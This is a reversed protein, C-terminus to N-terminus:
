RQAVPAFRTSLPLRVRVDPPKLEAGRGLQAMEVPASPGPNSGPYGRGFRLPRGSASGDGLFRHSRTDSGSGDAPTSGAVGAQFAPTDGHVGRRCAYVTGPDFRGEGRQSRPSIVVVGVTWRDLAEGGSRVPRRGTKLPASSGESSALCPPGPVYRRFRWRDCRGEHVTAPDFRERSAQRADGCVLPAGGLTPFQPTSGWADQDWVM